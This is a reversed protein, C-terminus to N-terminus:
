INRNVTTVGDGIDSQLCDRASEHLSCACSRTAIMRSLTTVPNHVWHPGKLSRLVRSRDSSGQAIQSHRGLIDLCIEEPPIVLRGPSYHSTVENSLPCPSAITPLLLMPTAKAIQFAVWPQKLSNTTCLCTQCVYYIYIYIHCM